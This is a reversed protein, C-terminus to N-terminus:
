QRAALISNLKQIDIPKKRSYMYPHKCQVREYQSWYGPIKVQVRWWHNTQLVTLLSTSVRTSYPAKGRLFMTLGLSKRKRYLYFECSPGFSDGKKVPKFKQSM